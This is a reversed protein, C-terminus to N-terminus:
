SCQPQGVPEGGSFMGTCEWAYDPCTTYLTWIQYSQQPDPSGGYVWSEDCNEFDTKHVASSAARFAVPTPPPSPPADGCGLMAGVGGAVIIRLSIKKM